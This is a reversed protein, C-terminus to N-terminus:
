HVAPKTRPLGATVTTLRKVAATEVEQQASAPLSRDQALPINRNFALNSILILHLVPTNSQRHFNLYLCQGDAKQPDDIM